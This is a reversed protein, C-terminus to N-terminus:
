EGPIRPQPGSGAETGTPPCVCWSLCVCVCMICAFSEPSFPPLLRTGTLVLTLGAHVPPWGGPRPTVATFRVGWGPGRLGYSPFVPGMVCATATLRFCLRRERCHAGGGQTNTVPPLGALHVARLLVCSGAVQAVEQSHTQVDPVCGRQGHVGEERLHPLCWGRGRKSWFLFGHCRGWGLLSSIIVCASRICSVSNQLFM